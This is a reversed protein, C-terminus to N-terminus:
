DALKNTQIKTRLLIKLRLFATVTHTILLRVSLFTETNMMTVMMAMMMAKIEPLMAWIM